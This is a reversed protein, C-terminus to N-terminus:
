HVWRKFAWRVRKLVQRQAKIGKSYDVLSEMDETFDGRVDKPLVSKGYEQLLYVECLLLGHDKFSLRGDYKVPDAETLIRDIHRLSRLMEQALKSTKMGRKGGWTGRFWRLTGVCILTSPMLGLVGFLLEQSKLLSDIGSIAVEVDVKTKQIQILLSRILTGRMTQWVPSKLDREYARLVPTLDGDRVHRRIVDLQDQTLFTAPPEGAPMSVDPNDIAFQVVMRELSEMDSNLSRKSMLAVESDKDHRITGIIRKLPDVVWNVWFDITTEGMERIWEKLEAQRNLIYKLVTSSSLLAATIPIWNRVIWSPRGHAAVGAAAVKAQLPLQKKLIDRLQMSMSLTVNLTQRAKVEFQEEQLRTARGEVLAYGEIEKVTITDYGSFREVMKKWDKRTDNEADLMLCEGVLLGLAAAQRERLNKIYTRKNIIERRAQAVPTQMVLSHQLKRRREEMSKQFLTFFEKVTDWMGKDEKNAGMADSIQAEVDEEKVGEKSGVITKSLGGTKGIEKLKAFTASFVEKTANLARIPSSEIWYMMTWYYSARVEEWYRLDESLPLTQALLTELVLGYTHIALKGLLAWELEQEIPTPDEYYTKELKCWGRSDKRQVVLMYQPM